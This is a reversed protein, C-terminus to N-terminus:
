LAKVGKVQAAIASVDTVTVKGDGNVDARTKAASGLAKIGKLHGAAASVDTVTVKGDGNVDGRVAGGSGYIYKFGNNKAYKEGATGATVKLTIDVKDHYDVGFGIAYADIYQVAAPITLQKLSTCGRFAGMEISTVSEPLSVSKLSSCDYCVLDHVCDLKKPFVIKEMKKCGSFANQDIVCMDGTFVAAKLGTGAFCSKGVYMLSSPFNVVSLKGCDFFAKDELINVGSGLRVEELERCANFADEHIITVTDPVSVMKVDKFLFAHDGISTVKKGFLTSPIEVKTAKGVYQKIEVTGDALDNVVFGGTESCIESADATMVTNEPLYAAGGFVLVVAAALAMIKKMYRREKNIDSRKCCMMEGTGDM